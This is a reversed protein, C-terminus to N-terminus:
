SRQSSIRQKWSTDGNYRDNSNEGKHAKVEGICGIVEWHGEHPRHHLRFERDNTGIKRKHPRKDGAAARLKKARGAVFVVATKVSVSRATGATIAYVLDGHTPAAAAAETAGPVPLEQSHLIIVAPRIRIHRCHTSPVLFLPVRKPVNLVSLRRHRSRRM